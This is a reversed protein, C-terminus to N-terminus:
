QIAERGILIVVYSVKMTMSEGTPTSVLRVERNECIETLRHEALPSYPANLVNGGSGGSMM